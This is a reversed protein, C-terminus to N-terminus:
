VVLLRSCISIVIFTLIGLIKNQVNSLDIATLLWYRLANATAWELRKDAIILKTRQQQRFHLHQM